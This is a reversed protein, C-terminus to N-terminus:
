LPNLVYIRGAGGGGGPAANGLGTAGGSPTQGGGGGTGGGNGSGNGGYGGGAYIGGGDGADNGGNSNTGAIGPTPGFAPLSFGSGPSGDAGATFNGGAGNSGGAGGQGVTYGGNSIAGGGGGLVTVGDFITSGGTGGASGSSGSGGAGITFNYTGAGRSIVSAFGSGGGAGPSAFGNGGGGAGGGGMLLIQGTGALNLSGSSSYVSVALAPTILQAGVKKLSIAANSQSVTFGVISVGNPILVFGRSPNNSLGTDDDLTTVTAVEVEAGDQFVMTAIPTSGLNSSYCEVEYYGEEITFAGRHFQTSTIRFWTAESAGGGGGGTAPPFISVSM